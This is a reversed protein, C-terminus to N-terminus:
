RYHSHTNKSGFRSCSLPRLGDDADTWETLLIRYPVRPLYASYHGAYVMARNEKKMGSGVAIYSMPQPTGFRPDADLLSVCIDPTSRTEGAGTVIGDAVIFLLKRSDSYTTNSISDLTTRLSDEGESYCTVLCVTFLEAGIQFLSITQQALGGQASGNAMLTSASPSTSSAKSLKNRVALASGAPRRNAWPATGNMNDITLNAGEPMVSPSVVTRSLNRPPAVLRSSLFWNFVLSMFFRALVLGLIVILGAYLMLDSIFCGPTLKDINGVVYREMLCSVASNLDARSFFLRTADKGSATQTGTILTRIALDVPDNAVATPHLAMYTSMDLVTGDIVFLHSM